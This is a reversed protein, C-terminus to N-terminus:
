KACAFLLSDDVFFLYLIFPGTQGCRVGTLEGCSVTRHVLSSLGEVCLLFLYPSLLDGQRLRRSPKVMGCVEGNVLFSFSVSSVCSMIRNVWRSLFGLKLMIQSLFGWEVRDYAKFMDLKLALFGKKRKLTQIAHLCEFGFAANDSILRGAVFASQDESIVDGLVMRLRNALTKAM